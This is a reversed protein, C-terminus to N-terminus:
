EGKSELSGAGHLGWSAKEAQRQRGPRRWCAAQCLPRQDPVATTQAVAASDTQCQRCTTLGSSCM